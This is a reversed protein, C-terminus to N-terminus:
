AAAADVAADAGVGQAASARGGYRLRSHHGSKPSVGDDIGVDRRKLRSEDLRDIPRSSRREIEGFNSFLVGSIPRNMAKAMLQTLVHGASGVVMGAIMLPETECCMAKSRWRWSRHLANYLSIVVPMDAGGIPLTMM